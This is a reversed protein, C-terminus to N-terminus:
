EYFKSPAMGNNGNRKSFTQDRNLRWDTFEAFELIAKALAKRRASSPQTLNADHAKDLNLQPDNDDSRSGLLHSIPSLSRSRLIATTGSPSPLRSTVAYSTVSARASFETPRTRGENSSTSTEACFALWKSLKRMDEIGAFGWWREGNPDDESDEDMDDESEHQIVTGPKGFVAIFWGWRKMTSREAESPLREKKGRHPGSASLAYYLRGETDCGLRTFRSGCWDMEPKHYNRIDAVIAKHEAEANQFQM